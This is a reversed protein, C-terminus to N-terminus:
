TQEDTRSLRFILAEVSRAFPSHGSRGFTRRPYVLSM